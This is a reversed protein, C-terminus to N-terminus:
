GPEREDETEEVEPLKVPPEKQEASRPKPALTYIRKSGFVLIGEKTSYLNGVPENEEGGSEVSIRKIVKGDEPSLVAIHGMQPIYIGDATLIGRAYSRDIRRKWLLKGGTAKYCRVVEDGAVFVRGNNVGLVYRSAADGLVPVRPTDWLLEGTRRDFAALADYDSGAFILTQGHPIVIEEEWGILMDSPNEMTRRFRRNEAADEIEASRMYAIAWNLAGSIADISFILGAGSAVYADGGEVAIAVPSNGSCYEAPENALFSRWLTKGTESELAYVWLAAGHHVPVLIMSGYPVASGAFSVDLGADFQGDGEYRLWSVKGSNAHYAVLRNERTRGGMVGLNGFQLQRARLNDNQETEESFDSPAGQFSLLLDGTMTMGQHVKDAFLESAEMGLPTEASRGYAAYRLVNYSHADMPYLNRFGLWNVDGTKLDMSATHFHTKFFARDGDVVFQGTPMMDRGTWEEVLTPPEEPKAEPQRTNGQNLNNWRIVRSNPQLRSASYPDINRMPLEPWSEPLRLDFGQEWAIGLNEASATQAPVNQMVGTRAANGFPMKWGGDGGSAIGSATASEVQALDAAVLNVVDSAMNSEKLEALLEKAGAIDGLRANAALLRVTVEEKAIESDPYASRLKLLLRAAPLFEFRDLKLCALEFAADDGQSSLFYRRVVEALAVERGEAGARRLIARAEGDAKLRYGELGAPPLTAITSEIDSTIGRYKQYRHELTKRVWEDRTFVVDSSRDIVQQWLITALDYREQQAFQNARQLLAEMESDTKVTASPVATNPTEEAGFFFDVENVALVPLLAGACLM